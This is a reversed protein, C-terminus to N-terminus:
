ERDHAEQLMQRMLRMSRIFEARRRPTTAKQWHAFDDKSMEQGRAQAHEMSLRHVHRVVSRRLPGPLRRCFDVMPASMEVVMRAFQEESLLLGIKHQQQPGLAHFRERLTPDAMAKQFLKQFEQPPLSDITDVVEGMWQERQPPSLAAPDHRTMVAAVDDATPPPPEPWLTWAAIGIAVLLCLASILLLPRSRAM